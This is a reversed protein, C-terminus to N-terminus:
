NGALQEVPLHARMADRVRGHLWDRTESDLMRVYKLKVPVKRKGDRYGWALILRRGAWDLDYRQRLADLGEPAAADGDLEEVIESAERGERIAALVDAVGDRGVAGTLKGFAAFGAREEAEECEAPSLATRLTFATGDPAEVKERELGIIGM